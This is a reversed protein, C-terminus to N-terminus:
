WLPWFWDQSQPSRYQKQLKLVESQCTSLNDTLQDVQWQSAAWVGWMLFIVCVITVWDDAIDHVGRRISPQKPDSPWIITRWFWGFVAVLAASIGKLIPGVAEALVALIRLVAPLGVAWGLIGALGGVAVAWTGWSDLLSNLFEM